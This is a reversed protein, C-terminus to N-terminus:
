WRRIAGSIDRDERAVLRDAREVTTVKAGFRRHMQAFELGVYSGGVVILHKWQRERPQEGDDTM